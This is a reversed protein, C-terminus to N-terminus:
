AAREGGLIDFFVRELDTREAMLEALGWGAEVAGAALASADEGRALTVQFLGGGLDRADAIVPLRQLADLPPPTRLRLLYRDLPPRESGSAIATQHLVQGDKLILVRGCVAQVEPLIHSSLIVGCDSALDRILDRVERIQVPDLGDTPEDLIVLDPRHVLAQAIGVRQRYGKSLRGLTRRATGTLGCRAMAATVAKHRGGRPVRHLQACYDLYEEVRM